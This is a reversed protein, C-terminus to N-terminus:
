CALQRGEEQAKKDLGAGVAMGIAMGIPLGLSLLGMNDMASGFMVGIPMGFASIGLAMWIGLYYNKTVYKLEKVARNYIKSRTKHIIKRSLDDEPIVDFKSIEENSKQVFETTLKKENLSDILKILQDYAKQTKPNLDKRSIPHNIKM